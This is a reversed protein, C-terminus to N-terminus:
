QAGGGGGGGPTQLTPGGSGLTRTAIFAALGATFVGAVLYTRSRSLRREYANGVWGRDVMVTEGAWRTQVGRVDTVSSVRIVFATDTLRVLTGEIRALGSGLTPGAGVRGVDTLLLSVGTGSVPTVLALPTSTYCAALLAALGVGIWPAVRRGARRGAHSRM